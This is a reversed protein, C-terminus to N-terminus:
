VTVGLRAQEALSDGLIPPRAQGLREASVADQQLSSM